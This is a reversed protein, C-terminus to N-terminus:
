MMMGACLMEVFHFFMGVVLIKSMFICNNKWEGVFLVM